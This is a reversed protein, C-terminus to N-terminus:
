QLAWDKPLEITFSVDRAATAGRPLTATWVLRGRVPDLKYGGATEKADILVKGDAMKSVPVQERFRNVERTWCLV